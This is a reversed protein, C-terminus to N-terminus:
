RMIMVTSGAASAAGNAWTRLWSNSAIAVPASVDPVRRGVM